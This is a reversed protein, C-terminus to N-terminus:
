FSYIIKLSFFVFVFFYVFCCLFSSNTQDSTIDKRLSEVDCIALSSRHVSHIDDSVARGRSLFGREIAFIEKVLSIFECCMVDM